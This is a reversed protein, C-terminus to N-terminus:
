RGAPGPCRDRQPQPVRIASCQRALRTCGVLQVLRRRTARRKTPLRRRPLLHRRRRPQRRRTRRSRSRSPGLPRRSPASPSRRPQQRQSKQRPHPSMLPVPARRAVLFLEWLHSPMCCGRWASFTGGAAHGCSNPALRHFWWGPLTAGTPHLPLHRLLWQEFPAVLRILTKAAM